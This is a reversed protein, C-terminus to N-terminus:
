VESLSSHVGLDLCQLNIVLEGLLGVSLWGLGLNRKAYEPSASIFRRWKTYWYTSFPFRDSCDRATVTVAKCPLLTGRKSTKALWM